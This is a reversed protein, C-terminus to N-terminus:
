WEQKHAKPCWPSHIDPFHRDYIAGCECTESAWLPFFTELSVPEEEYNAPNYNTKESYQLIYDFSKSKDVDYFVWEWIKNNYSVIKPFELISKYWSVTAIKGQGLHIKLKM